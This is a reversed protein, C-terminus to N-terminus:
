LSRKPIGSSRPSNGSAKPAKKIRLLTIISALDSKTKPRIWLWRGDHYQKANKFIDQIYKNLKIQRTKEIEEKGLVVLVCFGDQEPMLTVLTKGSRRYRITWDHEKKGISLEPAHDYHSALYTLIESWLEAKRGVLALFDKETPNKV